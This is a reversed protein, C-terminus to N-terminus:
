IVLKMDLDDLVILEVGFPANSSLNRFNSGQIATYYLQTYGKRCLSTETHSFWKSRFTRVRGRYGALGTSSMQLQPSVCFHFRIAYHTYLLWMGPGLGTNAAGEYMEPVCAGAAIACQFCALVLYGETM